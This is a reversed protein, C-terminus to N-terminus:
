GLYRKEIEGDKNITEVDESHSYELKDIIYQVLSSSTANYPITMIATKINSRNLNLKVLRICSDLVQQDKTSIKEIEGSNKNMKEKISIIKNDLYINLQHILSDYFDKPDDSKDAKGLNLSEFLRTENSLLALHQFGNCTGDLQIPLYTKFETISENNLFNDFRIM